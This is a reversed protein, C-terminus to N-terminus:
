RLHLDRQDRFADILQRHVELRVRLVVVGPAPQQLEHALAPSQQIIEPTHAGIAVLGQDLLQAQAALLPLLPVGGSPRAAWGDFLRVGASHPLGHNAFQLGAGPAPACRPRFGSRLRFAALGRPALLGGGWLERM